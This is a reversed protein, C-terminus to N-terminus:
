NIILRNRNIILNNASWLWLGSTIEPASQWYKPLEETADAAKTQYLSADSERKDWDAYLDAVRLLIGRLDILSLPSSSKLSGADFKDISSQFLGEATVASGSLKYCSGLLGLVRALSTNLRPYKIVLEEYIHLSKEACKSAKALSTELSTKEKQVSGHIGFIISCARNLHLRARVLNVLDVYYDDVLPEKNSNSDSNVPLSDLISLAAKWPGAGFYDQEGVNRQLCVEAIGINNLSVADAIGLAIRDHLTFYIESSAYFIDGNLEKISDRLNNLIPDGLEKKKDNANNSSFSTM